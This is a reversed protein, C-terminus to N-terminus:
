PGVTGSPGPPRLFMHKLKLRDDVDARGDGDLDYLPDTRLFHQKFALRDDVDVIGDQDFDPDCANGYGDGDTDRQPSPEGPGNPVLTCNDAADPVGDSDADPCAATAQSGLPTPGVEAGDANRTWAEYTYTAGCVLTTDVWALNTTWGTDDATTANAVRFETGPPNGNQAVDVQISTEAINSFGILATPNSATYDCDAASPATM